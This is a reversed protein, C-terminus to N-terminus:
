RTSPRQNWRTSHFEHVSLPDGMGGAASELQQFQADHEASYKLYLNTASLAMPSDIYLPLRPIKNADELQRLYYMLTQARGVAFAPVVICGGRQAVRNVVGAIEAAPDGAEHERDGYTSECLLVDAQASPTVPDRLIVQDHRGIDGSFIVVTKKGTETITLALSTSGLIHGADYAM